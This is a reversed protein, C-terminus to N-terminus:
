VQNHTHQGMVLQEVAREMAGDSTTRCSVHGWTMHRWIEMTSQTHYSCYPVPCTMTFDDEGELVYSDTPFCELPMCPQYQSSHYNPYSLESLSSVTSMPSASPVYTATSSADYQYSLPTPSLIDTDTEMPLQHGNYLPYSQYTEQLDYFQGYSNIPHTPYSTQPQWQIPEFQVHSSM